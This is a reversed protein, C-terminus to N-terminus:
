ELLVDSQINLSHVLYQDDSRTLVVNIRAKGAEFHGLLTFRSLDVSGQDPSVGSSAGVYQLQEYSQLAGLRSFLRLLKKGQDSTLQEQMSPTLLPELQQYDWSVIAPLHTDFYPRAIDTNKSSNIGFWISVGVLVVLLVLFFSGLIKLLKKLM